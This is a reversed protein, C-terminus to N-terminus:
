RVEDASGALVQAAAWFGEEAVYDSPDVDTLSHWQGDEDVGREVAEWRALAGDWRRLSCGGYREVVILLRRMRRPGPATRSEVATRILRSARRFVLAQESVDRPGDSLAGGWPAQVFIAVPGYAMRWTLAYSNLGHGGHSVAVHDPVPGSLYDVSSGQYDDLREVPDGETAWWWEDVRRLTPRLAVPIYPVGLGCDSFAAILDPLAHGNEYGIEATMLEETYNQVAEDLRLLLLKSQRPEATWSLVVTLQDDRRRVRREHGVVALTALAELQLAGAPFPGVQAVFRPPSDPESSPVLHFRQGQYDFVLRWLQGQSVLEDELEGQVPQVDAVGAGCDMIQNAVDLLQGALGLHEPHRAVHRCWQAPVASLLRPTPVTETGDGVPLDHTM